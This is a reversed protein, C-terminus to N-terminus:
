LAIILIFTVIIRYNTNKIIVIPLYNINVFLLSRHSHGNIKIIFSLYRNYLM